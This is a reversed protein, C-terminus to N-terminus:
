EQLVGELTNRVLEDAFEVTLPEHRAVLRFYLPGYLQDM